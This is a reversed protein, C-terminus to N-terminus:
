YDFGSDGIFERLISYQPICNAPIPHFMNLFNLLRVAENYVPQSPKVTKLLSEAYIKLVPLEYDLASNFASDAYKQFPFINRNEGRRVSPWMGLTQSASHGRFQNDRVMRRILRNDTTSIRNHDDLNLQTLASVYVKYKKDGPIKHTLKDNLGHIGEMLLINRSTLRLEKGKPGRKGLKFDFVPIEVINGAFLSILTENLLAVDIADISEFDYKGDKDRPTQERPLFFDDLSISVPNFGMVRLQISLKKTFTTKGSSSPGAILVIGVSEKRKFINDAIEAIKKNHLAEAVRIFENIEKTSALQNLKGACDVNLIKGWAKYDQFISFLVPDDKFDGMSDPVSSGPYGLLFGPSYNKLDFAKIIETNQVLPEYSIDFYDGCSYIPIKSSNRYELLMITATKNTKRFYELADNYSIVRRVIPYGAAIIRSMKSKIQDIEKQDIEEIGDFYYYYSDGLSHGIILRRDPFLEKAAMGLIYSLSRRYIRRGYYSDLTIPIIEANIEIKFSLSTLENNILAAIVPYRTGSLDMEDIIQNVRTGYPKSIQKKSPLTIHINNMIADKHRRFNGQKLINIGSQLYM